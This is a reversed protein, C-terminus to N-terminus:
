LHKTAFKFAEKVVEVMQNEYIMATDGALPMDEDPHGNFIEWDEANPRRSHSMNASILDSDQHRWWIDGYEHDKTLVTLVGYEWTMEVSIMGSM